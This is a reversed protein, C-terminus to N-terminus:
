FAAKAAPTPALHTDSSALSPSMTQSECGTPRDTERRIAASRLAKAGARLPFLVCGSFDRLLDLRAGTPTVSSMAAPSDQRPARTASLPPDDGDDKEIGCWRWIASRCSCANVAQPPCRAVGSLKPEPHLIRRKGFDDAPMARQKRLLLQRPGVQRRALVLSILVAITGIGRPNRWAACCSDPLAFPNALAHFGRPAGWGSTSGISNRWSLRAARSRGTQHPPGTRTAIM